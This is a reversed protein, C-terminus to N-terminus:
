IGGSLITHPGEERGLQTGKKWVMACGVAGNEDRSGDTWLVLGPQSDARRAEKEDWEADATSINAGVETPGDEPLFIEEM